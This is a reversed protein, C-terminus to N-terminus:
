EEVPFGADVWGQYNGELRYVENFGVDSLNKAAAISISDSHSYILYFEHPDWEPFAAEFSGNGYPYNVAGPIHGQAYAQSVDVIIMHPTMNLFEAAGLADINMYEAPELGYYDPADEPIEEPEAEVDTITTGSPAGEVDPTASGSPEEGLTEGDVVCEDITLVERGDPCVYYRTETEQTCGFSLVLLLGLSILLLNKM